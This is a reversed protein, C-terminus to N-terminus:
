TWSSTKTLADQVCSSHIFSHIVGPKLVGLGANLPPFFVVPNGLDDQSQKKLSLPESHLWPQGGGEVEWTHLSYWIGLKTQFETHLGPYGKFRFNKKQRLRGLAPIVPVHWWGQRVFSM